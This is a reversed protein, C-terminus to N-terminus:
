MYSMPVLVVLFTVVNNNNGEALDIGGDNASAICQTQNVPPSRQKSFSSSDKMKDHKTTSEIGQLPQTSSRVLASAHSSSIKIYFPSLFMAVWGAVLDGAREQARSM